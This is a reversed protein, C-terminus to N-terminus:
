ASTYSYGMSGSNIFLISNQNSCHRILLAAVEGELHLPLSPRWFNKEMLDPNRSISFKTTLREM